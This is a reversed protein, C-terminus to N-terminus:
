WLRGSCSWSGCPAVTLRDAYLGVQLWPWIGPAAHSFKSHQRHSGQPGPTPHQRQECTVQSCLHLLAEMCRFPQFVFCCLGMRMWVGSHARRCDTGEWIAPCHLIPKWGILKGVSHFDLYWSGMAGRWGLCFIHIRRARGLWLLQCWKGKIRWHWKGVVSLTAVQTWSCRSSHQPGTTSSPLRMSILLEELNWWLCAVFWDNKSCDFAALFVDPPM